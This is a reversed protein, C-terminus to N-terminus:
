KKPFDNMLKYAEMLMVVFKEIRYEKMMYFVDLFYYDTKWWWQGKWECSDTFDHKLGNNCFQFNIWTTLQHLYYFSSNWLLRRHFCVNFFTVEPSAKQKLQSLFSDLQTFHDLVSVSSVLNKKSTFKGWKLTFSQKFIFLENFSSITFGMKYNKCTTERQLIWKVHYIGLGQTM